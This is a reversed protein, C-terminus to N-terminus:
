LYHAWRAHALLEEGPARRKSYAAVENGLIWLAHPDARVVRSRYRVMIPDASAEDLRSLFAERFTVPTDHEAAIGSFYVDDETLNGELSLITRIGSGPGSAAIAAVRFTDDARGNM